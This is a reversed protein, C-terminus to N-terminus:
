YYVLINNYCLLVYQTDHERLAMWTKLAYGM